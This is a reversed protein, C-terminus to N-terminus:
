ATAIVINGIDIPRVTYLINFHNNNIMNNGDVHLSLLGHLKKVINTSLKLYLLGNIDHIIDSITIDVDNSTKSVAPPEIAIITKKNTNKLKILIPNNSLYTGVSM